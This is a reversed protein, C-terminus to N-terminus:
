AVKVEFPGLLPVESGIFLKITLLYIDADWLGGAHTASTDFMCSVQMEELNAAANTYKVTADSKAVVSYTATYPTLDDINHLRDTVDVVVFEKTGRALFKDHM